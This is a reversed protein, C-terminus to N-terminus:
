KKMELIKRVAEGYLDPRDLMISHGANEAVIAVSRTSLTALWDQTDAWEKAQEDPTGPDHKGRQIVVLPLDGLSGLGDLANMATLEEDLNSMALLDDQGARFVSQRQIIDQEPPGDPMRVQPIAIGMALANIAIGLQGVSQKTRTKSMETTNFRENSAEILVLGAVDDPHKRALMRVLLGGMSHGELIFPGRMGSKQLMTHLDDVRSELSRPLPAPDSWGLGARDYTCAHAVKAVEDQAKWYWLSSGFAGTEIIVTPGTEPGKCLIHLKRGGIDIMRGPPPIRQIIEAERIAAQGSAPEDAAVTLTTAAALTALIVPSLNRRGSGRM